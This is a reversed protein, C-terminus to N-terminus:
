PQCVTHSQKVAVKEHKTKINNRQLKHRKKNILAAKLIGASYNDSLMNNRKLLCESRFAILYVLLYFPRKFESNKLLQWVLETFKIFSNIFRIM